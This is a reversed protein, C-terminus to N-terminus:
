RSVPMEARIGAALAEALCAYGRDNHHLGDPAIVAADATGGAAWADMMKRRSFLQIGREQAVEALVGDFADRLVAHARAWPGRQSDMLVVDAGAEQMRAVGQRLLTRFRTLSHERIAGNVGLQWIVLDPEAAVVDAELRARMELADEGGRGLNLVRVALGERRLAAELRAPYTRDPASAYAGQTSSSGFALIRAERGEALAQALRPLHLLQLPAPPCAPVDEARAQGMLLLGLLLCFVALIRGPVMWRSHRLVRMAGLAQM